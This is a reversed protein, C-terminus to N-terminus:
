AIRANLNTTSHSGHTAEKDERREEEADRYHRNAGLATTTMARAAAAMASKAASVRAKTAPERASMRRASEAAMRSKHRM